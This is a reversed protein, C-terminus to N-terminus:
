RANVSVEAGDQLGSPAHVIVRDTDKLGQLVEVRLGDDTGLKVTLRHAHGERVVFVAGTGEETKGLLCSAPVSLRGSQELSIVVRGYMGNCLLGGPNPLDIETRMTRTQADESRAVRSIKGEFKKGPLADIEIVAKKGPIALPVDHDPVQVVVRMLDTREVTLLATTAGEATRVFGGPFLSRQTVVGPFPAELTAFTVLVESKELESKAVEVEAQAEVVDAEAQKIHADAAGVKARSADVLASAALVSEIAAEYREQTEDVLREDISKLAFLEKMRGFQKERFRVWADAAKKAAESQRVVADAAKQEERASVLRSDMQAVRAVAQALAAKNRQVQKDLEPVAIKALPEGKKVVSGIDVTQSELYGSVRAFLQVTEFPQVTGPQSTTRDMKGKEPSVVEVRLPTAQGETAGAERATARSTQARSLFYGTPVLGIMLSGCTWWIWSSGRSQSAM